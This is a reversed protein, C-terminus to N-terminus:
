PRIKERGEEEHWEERKRVKTQPQQLADTILDALVKVDVVEAGLDTERGKSILSDEM